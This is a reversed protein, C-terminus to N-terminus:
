RPVGAQEPLEIESCDYMDRARVRGRRRSRKRTSRHWSRTPRRRVSPRYRRTTAARCHTVRPYTQTLVYQSVHTVRTLTRTSMHGTARVYRQPVIVRVIRVGGVVVRSVIGLEACM